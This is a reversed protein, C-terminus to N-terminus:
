KSYKRKKEGEKASKWSNGGALTRKKKPKAQKVLGTLVAANQDCWEFVAEKVLASLLLAQAEDSFNVLDPIDEETTIEEADSGLDFVQTHDEM